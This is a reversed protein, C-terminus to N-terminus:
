IIESTETHFTKSHEKPILLFHFWVRNLCGPRLKAKNKDKCILCPWLRNNHWHRHWDIHGDGKGHVSSGGRVREGDWDRDRDGDENWGGLLRSVANEPVDLYSNM